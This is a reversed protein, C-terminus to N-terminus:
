FSTFYQISLTRDCGTTDSRKQLMDFFSVQVSLTESLHIGLTSNLYGRNLIDINQQLTQETWNDNDNWGFDYEGHVFVVDGITKDIGLFLNPDTDDDDTELSYNVGGHLGLNGLFLFNKSAVLYFGKSKIDYRKILETTSGTKQVENLNGHGQSDYGIALAPYKETEDILRFKANFEVRDHWKPDKNGVVEEAAYNVGFMFRPFLGVKTGILLGNNKYMKTLIEVEGRQLIGATPADVLRLTEYGALSAVFLLLILFGILHKM